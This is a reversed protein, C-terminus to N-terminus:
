NSKGKSKQMCRARLSLANHLKARIVAAPIHAIFRRWVASSAEACNSYNKSFANKHM